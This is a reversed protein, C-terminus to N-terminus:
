KISQIHHAINKKRIYQILEQIFDIEKDNHRFLLDIEKDVMECILPDVNNSYRVGRAENVDEDFIFVDTVGWAKIIKLRKDNIVTNEKLLLRGNRDKIDRSLIANIGLDSVKIQKM